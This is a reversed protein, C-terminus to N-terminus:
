LYMYRSTSTPNTTTSATPRVTPTSGMASATNTTRSAGAPGTARPGSQQTHLQGMVNAMLNPM